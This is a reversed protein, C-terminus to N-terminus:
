KQFAASIDLKVADSVMPVGFGIGFQSRMVTGTAHFGVNEKGGMQAPAKGAGYFRAQLTVPRTIGNLTLNGTITASQGQAVVRTSVFKADAPNAGFFDPRGGPAAARLLHSTLGSSATTVKSVPITMEVRAANPNRPDLTLTGSVDGFIGSYPSFGLHDVTWTVLTHGPDATYTGGTVAAPNRTGPATPAQQATAPIALLAAALLILRM